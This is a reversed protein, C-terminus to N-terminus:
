GAEVGLMRMNPYHLELGPAYAIYGAETGYIGVWVRIGQIFSRRRRWAAEEGGM